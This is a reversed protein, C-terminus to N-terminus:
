AARRPFNVLRKSDGRLDLPALRIPPGVWTCSSPSWGRRGSENSAPKYETLSEIEENRMDVFMQIDVEANM